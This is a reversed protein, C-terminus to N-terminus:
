AMKGVSQNGGDRVQLVGLVGDPILEATERDVAPIPVVMINHTLMNTKRDTSADFRPDEYANAISMPQNTQACCGAVGKGVPISFVAGGEEDSLKYVLSNSSSDMLFLTCRESDTVSSAISRVVDILEKLELKSAIVQALRSFRRRASGLRQPALTM